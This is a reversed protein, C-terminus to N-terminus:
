TIGQLENTRLPFFQARQISQSYERTNRCKWNGRAVRIATFTNNVICIVVSFVMTLLPSHNHFAVFKKTTPKQERKQGQGHVFCLLQKSPVLFCFLLNYVTTSKGVLIKADKNAGKINASSGFWDGGNVIHFCFFISVFINM